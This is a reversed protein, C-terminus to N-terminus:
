HDILVTLANAADNKPSPHVVVSHTFGDVIVYVYSNGDSYPSIPSKTDMSIRHNFLPSVKLFPQQPVM